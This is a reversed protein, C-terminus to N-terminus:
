YGVAERYASSFSITLVANDSGINTANHLVGQPISVTDGTNMEVSVENM